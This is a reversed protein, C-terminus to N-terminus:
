NNAVSVKAKCLGSHAVTAPVMGTLRQLRQLEDLANEYASDLANILEWVSRKYAAAEEPDPNRHAETEARHLDCVLQHFESFTIVQEIDM